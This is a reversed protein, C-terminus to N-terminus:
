VVGNAFPCYATTFHHQIGLLGTLAAFDTSTFHAGQDSTLNTVIGWTTLWRLLANIASASDAAPCATLMTYKSFSDVQTLIYRDGTATAGEPGIYLFDMHLWQQPRTARVQHGLPRPVKADGRVSLCHICAGVFTAIDRPITDWRFFQPTRARGGQARM